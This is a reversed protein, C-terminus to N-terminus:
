VINVYLFTMNGMGLSMLFIRRGCVANGRKKQMKPGFLHRGAKRERM